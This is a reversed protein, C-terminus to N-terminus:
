FEHRPASIGLSSMLDTLSVGRLQALDALAMTREAERQEVEASARLLESHEEPTLNEQRRKDILERYRNRLGEPLGENIKMLLTAEAATAQPARRRARLTLVGAVFHQFEELDLQEVAELLDRGSMQAKVQITSM